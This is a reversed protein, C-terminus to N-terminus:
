LNYCHNWESPNRDFYICWRWDQEDEDNDDYLILTVKGSEREREREWKDLRGGKM